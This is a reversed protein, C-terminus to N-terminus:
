SWFFRGAAYELLAAGRILRSVGGSLKLAIKQMKAVKINVRAIM